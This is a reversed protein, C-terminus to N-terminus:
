SHIEKITTKRAAPTKSTAIKKSANKSTAPIALAALAADHLEAASARLCDAMFAPDPMLNRCSVCSIWLVNNYSFGTYNMAVGDMPISVPYFHVARAGAIYLPVDPGRVNSVTCNLQSIVQKRMFYNAAAFPLAENIALVMEPGILEAGRKGVEAEGHVARLRAVPDAIETRLMVPAMGVENGKGADGNASRLSIPMLARLSAEPLEKKAILYRRLAGGCITLFIDNMTAGAFATRIAKVQAFPLPVAEVSRHASLSRNFRTVPAKGLGLAAKLARQDLESKSAQNTAAATLKGATRATTAVFRALTGLRKIGNGLARAYLEPPLPDREALIAVPKSDFVKRTASVSSLDHLKGLLHAAASGDFQAHHLKSFLAFAGAPLDPINDLGGIVYIEWLPRSRDLPHSHLRAVQIMLQRWDGPQPLAIHRVHFEIDMDASDVWYPRDIGMPVTVLRRRLAPTTMVRQQFHVLIEKFRVKGGSATSPDYIGLAAVHNYNNNRESELFFNDFGTLQRM